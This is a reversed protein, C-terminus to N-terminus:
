TALLALNYFRRNHEPNSLGSYLHDLMITAFRPGLYDPVLALLKGVTLAYPLVEMFFALLVALM